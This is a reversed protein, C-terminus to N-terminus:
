DYFIWYSGSDTTSDSTTTSESTSSSTTSSTPCASGLATILHANHGWVTTDPFGGPARSEVIGVFISLQAASNPATWEFVIPGTKPTNGTHTICNGTGSTLTQYGSLGTFTGVTASNPSSTDFINIELGKITGPFTLTLNHVGCPVPFQM